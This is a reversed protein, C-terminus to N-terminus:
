VMRGSKDTWYSGCRNHCRQCYAQYLKHYECNDPNEEILEEYCHIGHGAGCEDPSMTPFKPKEIRISVDYSEPLTLDHFYHGYDHIFNGIIILIAGVDPIVVRPTSYLSPNLHIVLTGNKGGNSEWSFWDPHSFDGGDIADEFISKLARKLNDQWM